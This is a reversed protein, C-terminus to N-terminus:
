SAVDVGVGQLDEVPQPLEVVDGVEDAAADAVQQEPAPRLVEVDAGGRMRVLDLPEEAVAPDDAAAEPERVHLEAGLRDLDGREAALDRLFLELRHRDLVRAGVRLLGRRRARLSARRRRRPPRGAAASPPPGHAMAAVAAPLGIVLVLDVAVVGEARGFLVGEAAVERDVREEVVDRRKEIM